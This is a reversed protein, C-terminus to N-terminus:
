RNGGQSGRGQGVRVFKSIQRRRYNMPCEDAKVFLSPRTRYATCKWGTLIRGGAYLKNCGECMPRALEAEYDFTEKRLIAM